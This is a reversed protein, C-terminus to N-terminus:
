HRTRRRVATSDQRRRSWRRCAPKRAAVGADHRNGPTHHDPAAAAGPRGGERAPGNGTRECPRCCAPGTRTGPKGARPNPVLFAGITGILILMAGVFRAALTTAYVTTEVSEGETKENTAVNLSGKYKGPKLQAIPTCLLVAGGAYNIAAELGDPAAAAKSNGDLALYVDLRDRTTTEVLTSTLVIGTAHAGSVAIRLAHCSEGTDTVRWETPVGVAKLTMTPAATNTLQYPVALIVKGWTIRAQRNTTSATAPMQRIFAPVRWIRRGSKDSTVETPPAFEVVPSTAPAGPAPVDSVTLPDKRSAVDDGTAIVILEGMGETAPAQMRLPARGLSLVPDAAQLTAGLALSAVSAIVAFQRVALRRREADSFQLRQQGLQRRLVRNEEMWYALAQAEQRALWGTLAVLMM